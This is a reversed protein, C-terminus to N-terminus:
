SGSGVAKEAVRDRVSVSPSGLIYFRWPTEVGRTIGIRTSTVVQHVASDGRAITLRGTTLDAGNDESTIALAQCLRGPGATLRASRVNPPSGRLTRMTQVGEIPEIARILVAAATGAAETVVNLMMHLGYSRYVYAHGPAGFMTGNRKTLGRYAHSADDDQGRYAETEVIRGSLRAAPSDHSIICGLLDRAVDVTPREYFSRDIKTEEDFSTMTM